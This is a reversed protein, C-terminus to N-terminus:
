CSACGPTAAAFYSFGRSSLLVDALARAPLQDVLYEEM